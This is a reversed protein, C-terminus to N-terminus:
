KWNVLGTITEGTDWDDISYEFPQDGYHDKASNIAEEITEYRGGYEAYQWKIRRNTRVYLVKSKNDNIVIM